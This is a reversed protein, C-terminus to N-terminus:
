RLEIWNFNGTLGTGGNSEFVLRLARLGATLSVGSHTLTRWTNWGGTNPVTLPGSVNVGDVEVHFRGGSGVSAVRVSLAYVGSRAVNVAYRLWEGAVASKVKYGGTSTTQLDVDDTRLVRGSNGSTTDHYAVNPGGRDYYEAEVRGPLTIPTGSYATSASTESTLAAGIWNFNGTLGSSGNTDMVLRLVQSGAALSVGTRTITQWTDWGGTNPVTLAGTKDTGNSEIHFRGGAGSSSVRITLTYTGATAVTVSYNLWEGAVASKLKYGGGAGSSVTQLDVNDSRYVGGSNGSTTDHYAVGSGGRDYNEAQVTGPLSVPSAAYPTSGGAGTGGSAVAIWNFNGTLGASGNTDMVLRLVQPGASLSVGTRTITQWTDWGGTNPVTLAGTKDVGDSEIHFRGGAGASSVRLTITYSGAAAVNVTYKLWEGAVASKIKYGGGSDSATQLDVSDSRYVGGANGSTTDHYAVGSGGRDYNEAQVTGPLAVATGSYPTSSGSPPPPNTPPPPPPASSGNLVANLTTFNVGIDTGDSAANNSLSSSLLQYNGAAAGVFDALWQVITPFDNGPPYLSAAAGAFTNRSVIAGPTYTNFAASGEGYDAGFVGYKNDRMLNNTLEFGQIQWGSPAAGRYFQIASSGDNDITNHNIVIDRPGGGIIAFWGPSPHGTSGYSKSMDYVLNNEILIDQTQQSTALNDHGLINFGAAVHRIVNHRVTVDRVVTWPATGSQNRPTFLISYGQQGDAWNNELINGEILVNRANKFELLNKVTWDQTRWALPKTILNRRITINSPILNVITPDSGGFLINEAAAELHNNEIVYPGPGNWGAIAQTDQNVGKFDSFYSNIVQTDGSNLALGRRQGTSASGHLYCRDMILHHPVSSSTTQSSGAGGFEVLNASPTIAPLFELFLLRWYSAGALTRLATGGASGARIKPMLAAHAPTVRVGPGPLQSDSASTRITIHATGNKAPLKFNGTYTAGAQLVITDGPQAAYLAAQFDGGAPVTITAADSLQPASMVFALVVCARICNLKRV